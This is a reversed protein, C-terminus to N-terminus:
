DLRFVREEIQTRRRPAASREVRDFVFGAKELV